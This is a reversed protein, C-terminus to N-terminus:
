RGITEFVESLIDLHYTNVEGFIESHAKGIPYDHEKSLRAAKRGLKNADRVDVKVGRMSAFGAITFYDTPSKEIKASLLKVESELAKTRNDMEVLALASQALVELHSLPKQQSELEIFYNRYEHGKPTRAMMSIHKAFDISIAFDKSENGNLMINFGVWDNNEKFFDNEVINTVLWRSWVAKDLGLGLYLERASVSKVVKSNLCTEKVEILNNM